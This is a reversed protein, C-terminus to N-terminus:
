RASRNFSNNPRARSSLRTGLYSGSCFAIPILFIFLITSMAGKTEKDWILGAIFILMLTPAISLWFGWRRGNPWKLGFVIGSVVYLSSCIIAGIFLRIVLNSSYFFSEYIHAIYGVAFLLLGGSIIAVIYVYLATKHQTSYVDQQLPSGSKIVQEEIQLKNPVLVETRQPINIQIDHDIITAQPDYPASLLSGDALCFTITEDAYTRNCKPCRKM